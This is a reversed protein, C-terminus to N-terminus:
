KNLKLKNKKLPLINDELTKIFSKFEKLLNIDKEKNEMDIMLEVGIAAYKLVVLASEKDIEFYNNMYKEQRKM